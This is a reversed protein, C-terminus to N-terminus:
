ATRFRFRSATSEEVVDADWIKVLGDAGGSVLHGGDPSFAVSIVAGNHGRLPGVVTKGTDADWIRITGDSAGSAARKSDPSFAASYVVGTHGQLIKANQADVDWLDMEQSAFACLIHKGNPSYALATSPESHTGMQIPMSASKGTESHFITAKGSSSVGIFNGDGPGLAIASLTDCRRLMAEGLQMGTRADWRHIISQSDSHMLSIIADSDHGAQRIFGVFGFVGIMPGLQVKLIHLQRGPSTGVGWVRITRDNSGSVIREGNPSFAIATIVGKHGRLPCHELEGTDANWLRITKDSSGSAV